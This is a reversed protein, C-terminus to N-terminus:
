GAKERAVRGGASSMTSPLQDASGAQYLYWCSRIPASTQRGIVTCRDRDSLAEREWPRSWNGSDHQLSLMHLSRCSYSPLDRRCSNSGIDIRPRVNCDGCSTAALPHHPRFCRRDLRLLILVVNSRSKSRPDCLYHWFHIGSTPHIRFSPMACSDLKIISFTIIQRRSPHGYQIKFIDLQAVRNFHVSSWCNISCRLNHWICCWRFGCIWPSLWCLHSM